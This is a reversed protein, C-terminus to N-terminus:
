FGKKEEKRGSMEQIIEVKNWKRAWLYATTSFHFSIRMRVPFLLLSVFKAFISSDRERKLNEQCEPWPLFRFITIILHQLLPPLITSSLYLFPQFEPLLRSPFFQSFSVLFTSSFDKNMWEFMESWKRGKLGKEVLFYLRETERM